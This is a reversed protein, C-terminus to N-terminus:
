DLINNGLTVLALRDRPSIESRLLIRDLAEGSESLALAAIAAHLADIEDATGIAPDRKVFSAQALTLGAQTVVAALTLGKRLRELRLATAPRRLMDSTVVERSLDNLTAIVREAGNLKVRIDAPMTLYKFVLISKHL